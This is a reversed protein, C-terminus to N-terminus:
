RLALQGSMMNPTQLHARNWYEGFSDCRGEKFSIMQYIM